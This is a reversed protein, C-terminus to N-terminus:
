GETGDTAETGPEIQAPALGFIQPHKAVLGRLIQTADRSETYEKPRGTLTMLKDTSTQAVRALSAASRATDQDKGNELREISKEVALRTGEVALRAVERMENALNGELQASHRERLEDYRDAYRTKWSTLTSPSIAIGKEAKLYNSAPGTQGAWAVLAMLITTIEEESRAPNSM